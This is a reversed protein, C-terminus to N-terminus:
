TICDPGYVQGPGLLGPYRKVLARRLLFCFHCEDVYGPEPTIRMQQALLAPGGQVLASCIPHKEHDYNKVLSPLPTEWFSGMLLGQCIHVNGFADVHVRGPSVLEEYPCTDLSKWDKRELGPALKDVARGRFMATGGEVPEGRGPGGVAGSVNGPDAVTISDVRLDLDQAAELATRAPSDARDSSHFSDDSISLFDLGAEALPTLWLLADAKSSSPYANTVLGVQLGAARTERVAEKLLSYYLLPEGGEFFVTDVSPIERTQALLARFRELTFTGKAWPSCYLFCHDCEFTCAYTLLVHVGTLM